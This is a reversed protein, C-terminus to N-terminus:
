HRNRVVELLTDRSIPSRGILLRERNRSCYHLLVPKPLFIYILTLLVGSRKQHEQSCMWCTMDVEIDHYLGCSLEELLGM